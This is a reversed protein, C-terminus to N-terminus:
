LMVKFVERDVDIETLEAPEVGLCSWALDSIYENWRPRPHGRPRKGTPKLWCFKGRWDKTPLQLYEASSVCSHDRVESFYNLMWTDAIIVAAYKTAFYWVLPTAIPLPPLDSRPASFDWCHRLNKRWYGVTCKSAFSRQNSCPAGLKNRAVPSM